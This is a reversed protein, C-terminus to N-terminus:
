QCLKVSIVIFKISFVTAGFEKFLQTGSSNRLVTSNVLPKLSVQQDPLHDKPIMLEFIGVCLM